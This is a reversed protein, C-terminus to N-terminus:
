LQAVSDAAWFYGVGLLGFDSVNANLSIHPLKTRPLMELVPDGLAGEVRPIAFCLRFGDGWDTVRFGASDSVIM